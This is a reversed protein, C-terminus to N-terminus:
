GSKAAAGLDPSDHPNPNRGIDPQSPLEFFALGNGGGADLFVHMCPNDKGTSPVRDEAFATTCTLGLV